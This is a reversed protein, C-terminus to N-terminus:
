SMSVVLIIPVISAICWGLPIWRVPFGRVPIGWVVVGGGLVCYRIDVFLWHDVMHVGVFMHHLVWDVVVVVAVLM